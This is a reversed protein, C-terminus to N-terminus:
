KPANMKITRILIDAALSYIFKYEDPTTAKEDALDAFDDYIKEATEAAESFLSKFMSCNM